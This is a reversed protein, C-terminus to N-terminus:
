CFVFLLVCRYYVVEVALRLCGVVFVCGRVVDVFTLCDVVVFSSM